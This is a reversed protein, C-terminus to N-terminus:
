LLAEWALLKMSVGKLRDLYDVAGIVVKGQQLARRFDVGDDEWSMRRRGTGIGGGGGGGGGGGEEAAKLKALRAEVKSPSIGFTSVQLIVHRGEYEVGLFGGRQFEYRPPAPPLPSPTM